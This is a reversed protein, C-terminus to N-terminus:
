LEGEALDEANKEEIEKLIEPNDKELMKWGSYYKEYYEKRRNWFLDAMEVEIFEKM